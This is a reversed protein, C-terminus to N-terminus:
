ANPHAGPNPTYNSGWPLFLEESIRLEDWYGLFQSTGSSRTMNLEGGGSVTPSVAMTVSGQWIGDVWCGFQRNSSGRGAFAFAHWEHLPIPTPLTLVQLDAGDFFLAQNTYATGGINVQQLQITWWGLGNAGAICGSGDRLAIELTLPHADTAMRSWEFVGGAVSTPVGLNIPNAINLSTSGRYVQASSIIAASSGTLSRGYSSSDQYSQSGIAGEMHMLLKVNSFAPNPTSPAPAPAPSPAPAPAIVPANGPRRVFGGQQSTAVVQGLVDFVVARGDVGNPVEYVDVSGPDASALIPIDSRMKILVDDASAAAMPLHLLERANCGYDLGLFGNEPTSLWHQVMRAVDQPTIETVETRKM